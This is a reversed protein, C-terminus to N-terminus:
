YLMSPTPGGNPLCIERVCACVSTLLFLALMHASCTASLTVHVCRCGSVCQRSAVCLLLSFFCFCFVADCLCLTAQENGFDLM